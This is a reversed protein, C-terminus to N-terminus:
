DTVKRWIGFYREIGEDGVDHRYSAVAERILAARSQGREDALRDLWAIDEDPLDALIRPM